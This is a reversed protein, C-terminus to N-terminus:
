EEIFHCAAFQGKSGCPRLQPEETRCLAAAKPCRPHFRCGAPLRRLSPIEGRPTTRNRARVPDPPLWANLLSQSYPHRPTRYFEDAPGAEVITGLYMVYVRDCLFRVTSLDHSIFLYAIGRRLQVRRLLNLVQARISVDQSSVAEDLIVLEPDSILARAIAIRQRQGGSFEAPFRTAAEPDLDVQSLVQATRAELDPGPYGGAARLTESVIRGIRMRPDLSSFPDQFVPQVARHFEGLRRGHLRAVDAGRFEVSGLTPTTLRLLLRSLTTKGCGSEGVLGVAEGAAIHMSVDDVAKVPLSGTGAWRWASSQYNKSLARTALLPPTVDIM